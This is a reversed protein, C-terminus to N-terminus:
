IHILSLFPRAAEARWDVLVPTGEADRVGLRGIHLHGGACTDIRGFCLVREAAEREAIVRGLRAVRADRAFLDEASEVRSALLTARDDRAQVLDADVRAYMAAVARNEREIQGRM